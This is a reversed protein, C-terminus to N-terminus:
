RIKSRLRQYSQNMEEIAAHVGAKMENWTADSASKLGDLQKRAAGKKEELEHISKQLETRASVSAKDANGQLAAMQKQIAEFEEQAKRQFAEKQQTTYRATAEIAERTITGPTVPQEGADVGASILGCWAVSLGIIWRSKM